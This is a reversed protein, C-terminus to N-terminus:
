PILSLEDGSCMINSKFVPYELSTFAKQKVMFIMERSFLM